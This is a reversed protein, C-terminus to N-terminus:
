NDILSALESLLTDARIVGAGAQQMEEVARCSDGPQVEVGAICDVLLSVGFGRELAELVTARVCYDTALGGIYLHRAAAATLLEMLSLGQANRGDFASYGDAQPDIGKSLIVATQPLRLAPHFAAGASERVCHVPWSGGDKQFHGTQEPHWDRSAYVPMGAEVFCAALQGLPAAVRDGEPVPLAGGPCFDNQVDVIILARNKTM